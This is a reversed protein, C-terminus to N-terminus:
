RLILVIPPYLFKLPYNKLTTIINFFVIHDFKNVSIKEGGGGKKETKFRIKVSRIFRLVLQILYHNLELIVPTTLKLHVRYTTTPILEKELTPKELFM